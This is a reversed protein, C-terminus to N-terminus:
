QTAAHIDGPTAGLTHAVAGEVSGFYAAAEAHVQAHRFAPQCHGIMIKGMRQGKKNPNKLLKVLVWIRCASVSVYCLSKIRIAINAGKSIVILIGSPRLNARRILIKCETLVIVQLIWTIITM